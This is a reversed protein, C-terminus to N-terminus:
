FDGKLKITYKEGSALPPIEPIELNKLYEGRQHQKKDCFICTRMLYIRPIGAIPYLKKWPGFFHYDFLKHILKKM